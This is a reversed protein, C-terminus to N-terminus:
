RYNQEGKELVKYGNKLETIKAGDLPTFTMKINQAVTTQLRTLAMGFANGIDPMCKIVFSEGEGEDALDQLVIFSLEETSSEM